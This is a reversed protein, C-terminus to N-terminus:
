ESVKSAGVVGLYRNVGDVHLLQVLQVNNADIAFFPGSDPFVANSPDIGLISLIEVFESQMSNSQEFHEASGPVLTDDYDSDTEVWVLVSGNSIASRILTQLNRGSEGDFNGSTISEVAYSQMAPEAQGFATGACLTLVGCLLVVNQLKM